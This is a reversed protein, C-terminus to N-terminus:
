RRSWRHRGAAAPLRSSAWRRASYLPNDFAATVYSIEALYLVFLFIHAVYVQWARRLIRAGGVVFGRDRM